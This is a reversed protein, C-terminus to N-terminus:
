IRGECSACLAVSRNADPPLSSTSGVLRSRGGVIAPKATDVFPRNEVTWRPEPSVSRAPKAAPSSEALKTRARNLAAKVAGVTSGTLEAIDELQTGTNRRRRM